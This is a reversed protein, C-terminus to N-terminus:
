EPGASSLGSGGGPRAPAELMTLVERRDLLRLRGDPAARAAALARERVPASLPVGLACAVAAIQCGVLDDLTGSLLPLVEEQRGSCLAALAGAFRRGEKTGPRDFAVEAERALREGLPLDGARWAVAAETFAILSHLSPDGLGAVVSVLEPDPVMFDGRLYSATRHGVLAGAELVALRHRAALAAAQEYSQLAEEYAGGERLANGANVLASARRDPGLEDRAVEHYLRAAELYRGQRFRVHGWALLRRSRLLGSPDPEDALARVRREAETPDRGAAVRVPILLRYTELEADAFAPLDAAIAEARQGQRAQTAEWAELLRGLDLGSPDRAVEFRAAKLSPVSGEALAARALEVLLDKERPRRPDARVGALAVTLVGMARAAAGAPILRRALVLAEEAVAPADGAAALHEIRSPSGPPLHAALARHARVRESDSWRQLAGPVAVAEFNGGPLSRVVGREHLESLEAELEWTPIGTAVHLFDPHASRGALAVWALLDDLPGELTPGASGGGPPALFLGADLRDLGLRDVHLRGAEWRAIGASVWANVERVIAAPAGRSRDYLVRAGDERLHLITDPGHFLAHLDAEELPELKLAGVSDAVRLVAGGLRLRDLLSRSWRDLREWDDVV